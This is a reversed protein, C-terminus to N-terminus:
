RMTMPPSTSQTLPSCVRVGLNDENEIPRASLNLPRVSSKTSNFVDSAMRPGYSSVLNSLYIAPAFGKHRAGLM